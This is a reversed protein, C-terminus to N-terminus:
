LASGARGRTAYLHGGGFYAVLKDEEFRTVQNPIRLRPVEAFQEALISRVVVVRTRPRIRMFPQPLLVHQGEYGPLSLAVELYRVAEEVEDIWVDVCLGAVLRDAGIVSMGRPDPSRHDLKYETADRLPAIKIAGDITLDPEDKRWAYSAPGIGDVLPNGTPELPAGPFTAAPRAGNPLRPPFLSGPAEILDGHYMRFLKPKPTPPLGECVVEETHGLIESVLPYGERKDERRLYLVLGAFFAWFGYLTVQAVDVYGTFSTGVM